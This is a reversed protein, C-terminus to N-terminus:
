RQVHSQRFDYFSIKRDPVSFWQTLIVSGLFPLINFWEQWAGYADLEHPPWRTEHQFCISVNQIPYCVWFGPAIAFARPLLM